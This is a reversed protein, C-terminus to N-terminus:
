ITIKNFQKELAFLELKMKNHIILNDGKNARM